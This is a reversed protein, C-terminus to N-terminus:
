LLALISPLAQSLASGAGGWDMGGKQSKPALVNEHPNIGLLQQSNQLLSQIAQNRLGMRQSQLNESLDAGAGSVANEFANSNRGGMHSFRTGIQGLLGEFQRHAPAELEDFYSQDGGAIKSLFDMGGELGGGGMLSQILNNLLDMQEPSKTPLQASKYGSIKPNPNYGSSGSSTQSGYANQSSFAM